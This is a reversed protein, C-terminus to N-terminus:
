TYNDYKSLPKTTIGIADRLHDIIANAEALQSKKCTITISLEANFHEPIQEIYVRTDRTM